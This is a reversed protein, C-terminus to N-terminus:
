FTKTQLDKTKVLALTPITQGHVNIIVLASLPLSACGSKVNLFHSQLAKTHGESCQQRFTTTSCDSFTTM